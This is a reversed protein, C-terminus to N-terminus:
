TNKTSPSPVAWWVFMAKSFRATCNTYTYFLFFCDDVETPVTLVGSILFSSRFVKLWYLLICRFAIDKYASVRNKNKGQRAWHHLKRHAASKMQLRTKSVQLWPRTSLRRPRRAQPAEFSCQVVVGVSRLSPKSSLRDDSIAEGMGGKFGIAEQWKRNECRQKEREREGRQVMKKSQFAFFFLSASIVTLVAPQAELWVGVLCGQAEGELERVKTLTIRRHSLTCAAKMATASVNGGLFEKKTKVEEKWQKRKSNNDVYRTAKHQPEEGSHM